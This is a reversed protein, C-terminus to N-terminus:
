PFPGNMFLRHSDYRSCSPSSRKTTSRTIEIAITQRAGLWRPALHREGLDETFSFVINMAVTCGEIQCRGGGQSVDAESLSGVV